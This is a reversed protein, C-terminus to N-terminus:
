EVIYGNPLAKNLQKDGGEGGEKDGEENKM